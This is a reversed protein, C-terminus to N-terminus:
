DERPMIDNSVLEKYCEYYNNINGNFFYVDQNKMEVQQVESWYKLNDFGKPNCPCHKKCM